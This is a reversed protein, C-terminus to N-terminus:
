CHPPKEKQRVHPAHNLMKRNVLTQYVQDAVEVLNQSTDIRCRNHQNYLEVMTSGDINSLALYIDSDRSSQMLQILEHNVAAYRSLSTDPQESPIKGGIVLIPAPSHARLNRYGDIRAQRHLVHDKETRCYVGACHIILDFKHVNFFQQVQPKRSIDLTHANNYKGSRSAYEVVHKAQILRKGIAAGISTSSSTGVILVKMPEFNLFFGSRGPLDPKVRRSDASRSTGTATATSSAM